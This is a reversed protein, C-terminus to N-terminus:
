TRKPLTTMNERACEWLDAHYVRAPQQNGKEKVCVTIAVGQQIDFVNEDIGGDPAKERKRSNGHLNFIYIENFTRLLNQRMVRFTINDLYGHNTVYGIVGEGTQEIRWQAFRIFKVYDDNLNHKRENLNRKYDSLLDTIWRGKNQTSLSYPPNGLVVMIPDDRKIAAAENAEDSIFQGMLLNSKKIAEDLTNTLYVGVRQDGRFDYGSEQFLLGLKLHAVAYPAVLLEFGFLRPLLCKEVYESWTGAGYTANVM